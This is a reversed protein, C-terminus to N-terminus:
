KKLEQMNQEKRKPLLQKSSTVLEVEKAVITTQSQSVIIEFWIRQL